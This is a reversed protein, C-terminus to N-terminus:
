GRRLLILMWVLFIILAGLSMNSCAIGNWFAASPLNKSHYKIQWRGSHRAFVQEMAASGVGNRRFPYAVFFEAVAWDLPRDCEAIRNILAFGALSEEAYILYAARDDRGEFYTPLWEYCVTRM